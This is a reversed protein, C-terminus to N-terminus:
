RVTLLADHCSPTTQAINLLLETYPDLHFVLDPLHSPHLTGAKWWWWDGAATRPQIESLPIMGHYLTLLHPVQKGLTWTHKRAVILSPPMSAEDRDDICETCRSPLRRKRLRRNAPLHCRSRSSSSERPWERMRTVYKCVSYEWGLSWAGCFARTMNRTLISPISCGIGGSISKLDCIGWRRM